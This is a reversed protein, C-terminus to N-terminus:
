KHREVPRPAEGMEALAPGQWVFRFRVALCPRGKGWGKRGCEISYRPVTGCERTIRLVASQGDVM